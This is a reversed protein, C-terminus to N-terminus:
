EPTFIFFNIAIIHTNILKTQNNEDCPQVGSEVFCVNESKPNSTINNQNQSTIRSLLFVHIPKSSFGFFWFIADITKPM